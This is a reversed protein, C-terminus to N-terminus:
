KSSRKGFEAAVLSNVVLMLAAGNVGIQAASAFRDTGDNAEGARRFRGLVGSALCKPRARV